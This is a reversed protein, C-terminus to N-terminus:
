ASISFVFRRNDELIEQNLLVMGPNLMRIKELLIGPEGSIFFEFRREISANSSLGLRDLLENARRAVAEAPDHITVGSGAIRRIAQLLFPYHTCGLIIQDVGLELMPGIYKRLLAEVQPSEEEGREVAEVLGLGAQYHIQVHRAHSDLLKEYRESNLTFETALVGIHGSLSQVAAPKVAPEIGIFPIDYVQRLHNIAASTITNSALVILKCQRRLLFDVAQGALVIIEDQSRDGYPCHATDAFYCTSEVPLLRELERWVTLGGVGSDIIGVPRDDM